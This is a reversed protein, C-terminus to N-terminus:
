SGSRGVAKTASSFELEPLNKEATDLPPSPLFAANVLWALYKGMLDEDVTRNTEQMHPSLLARM